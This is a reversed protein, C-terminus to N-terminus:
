ASSPMRSLPIHSSNLRTSKRDAVRIRGNANKITVVGNAITYEYYVMGSKIKSILWDKLNLRDVDSSGFIDILVQVDRVTANSGVEIPNHDTDGVRICIVPLPTDYVKAFSKEVSVGSWGDTSLQAITWDILSAELNLSIDYTVPM